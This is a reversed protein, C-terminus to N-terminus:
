TCMAHLLMAAAWHGPTGLYHGGDYSLDSLADLVASSHVFKIPPQQEECYARMVQNQQHVYPDTRWDRPASKSSGDNGRILCRPHTSVWAVRGELHPARRIVTRLMNTAVQYYRQITWPRDGANYSIPWQGINIALETCNDFDAREAEEGFKLPIFRGWTPAPMDRLTRDLYPITKSTMIADAQTVLHRMQSDGAFCVHGRSAHCKKSWQRVAEPTPDITCEQFPQWRLIFSDLVYSRTTNAQPGIIASPGEGMIYTRRLDHLLKAVVESSQNAIWRGQLGGIPPCLACGGKVCSHGQAPPTTHWQYTAVLPKDNLSVNDCFSFNSYLQLVEAHFVGGAQLEYEAYITDADHQITRAYFLENGIIRVRYIPRGTCESLIDSPLRAEYPADSASPPVGTRQLHVIVFAGSRESRLCHQIGVLNLYPPEVQVPYCRETKALKLNSMYSQTPVRLAVFSVLLLATLSLLISNIRVSKDALEICRFRM